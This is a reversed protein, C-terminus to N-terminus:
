QPLVIGAGKVVVPLTSYTFNTDSEETVLAPNLAVQITPLFYHFMNRQNQAHMITAFIAHMKFVVEM